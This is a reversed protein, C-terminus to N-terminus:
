HPYIVTSNPQFNLFHRWLTASHPKQIPASFPNRHTLLLLSCTFQDMIQYPATHTNNIDYWGIAMGQMAFICRPSSMLLVNHLQTSFCWNIRIISQSVSGVICVKDVIRAAAHLQLQLQTVYCLMVVCCCKYQCSIAILLRFVFLMNCLMLKCTVSDEFAITNTTFFM